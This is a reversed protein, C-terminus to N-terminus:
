SNPNESSDPFVPINMCACPTAKIRGNDDIASYFHKAQEARYLRLLREKNEAASQWEDALANYFQVDAQLAEIADAADNMLSDQCFFGKGYYGCNQEQTCVNDENTCYRLADVLKSYDTM